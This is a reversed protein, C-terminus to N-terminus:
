LGNKQTANYSQCRPCQTIKKAGIELYAFHCFECQYLEKESPLIQRKLSTYHHIGWISLIAILTLGLYLMLASIPTLEIM